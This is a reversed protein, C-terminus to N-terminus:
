AMAPWAIGAAQNSLGATVGKSANMLTMLQSVATKIFTFALSFCTAGFSFGAPATVIGAVMGIATILGTVLTGVAIGIAIWFATIAKAMAYLQECVSESIPKLAKAAERQADAKGTYASYAGNGGDSWNGASPLIRPDMENAMTEIASGFDRVWADGYDQLLNPQGVHQLIERLTDYFSQLLDNITQILKNIQRIADGLGPVWGLWDSAASVVSAARDILGAVKDGVRQQLEVVETLIESIDAGRPRTVEYSM